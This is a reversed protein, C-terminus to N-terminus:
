LKHAEETYKLFRVSYYIERVTDFDTQSACSSFMTLKPGVYERERLIAPIHVAMIFRGDADKYRVIRAQHGDIEVSEQPQKSVYNLPDSYLGYDFNLTISKNQYQGVHSDIGQVMVKEMDPPVYFEFYHENVKKWNSPVPEQAAGCSVLVICLCLSGNIIRM